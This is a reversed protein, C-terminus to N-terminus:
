DEEIINVFETEKIITKLLKVYQTPTLKAKVNMRFIGSEEKVSSYAYPLMERICDDITYQSFEYERPIWINLESSGAGSVSVCDKSVKGSVEYDYIRERDLAETAKQTFTGSYEKIKYTIM